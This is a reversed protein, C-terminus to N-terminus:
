STPYVFNKLIRFNIFNKMANPIKNDILLKIDLLHEFISRAAMAITQFYKTNNLKVIAELWLYIGMYNAIIANDKKNKELIGEALKIINDSIKRAEVCSEYYPRLKSGIPLDNFNWFNNQKKKNKKRM